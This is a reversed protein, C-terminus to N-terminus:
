HCWRHLCRDLILFCIRCYVTQWICINETVLPIAWHLSCSMFIDTNTEYLKYRMWSTTVVGKQLYCSHFESHFWTTWPNVTQSGGIHKQESVTEMVKCFLHFSTPPLVLTFRFSTRHMHLSYEELPFVAPVVQKSGQNNTRIQLDRTLTNNNMTTDYHNPTRQITRTINSSALVPSVNGLGTTNSVRYERGDKLGHSNM